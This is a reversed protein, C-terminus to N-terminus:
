DQLFILCDFKLISLISISFESYNSWLRDLNNELDMFPFKYHTSTVGSKKKKIKTKSFLFNNWLIVIEM